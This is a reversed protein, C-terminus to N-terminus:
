CDAIFFAGFPAKKNAVPCAGHKTVGAFGPKRFVRPELAGNRSHHEKV